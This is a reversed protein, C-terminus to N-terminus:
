EEDDDLPDDDSTRLASVRVSMEVFHSVARQESLTAIQKDLEAIRKEIERKRQPDASTQHERQFGARRERLTEILEDLHKARPAGELAVDVAQEVEDQEM